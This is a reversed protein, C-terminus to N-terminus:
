SKNLKNNYLHFNTIFYHMCGTPIRLENAVVGLLSSFMFQDNCFGYWLDISRAMVTLHLRKNYIYFNLVLNCPTDHTFNDLYDPSYHVVVARRTLPDTKLMDVIKSLQNNHHWWWGYNSWVLEDGGHMLDWMAAHKKIEAVSRNGSQYWEWERQAYELSWKRWPTMIHNSMPHKIEFSENFVTLANSQVKEGLNKIWSYYHEFAGQPTNFERSM